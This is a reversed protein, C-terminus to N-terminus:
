KNAKTPNKITFHRVGFADPGASEQRIEGARLAKEVQQQDLDIQRGARVGYFGLGQRYRLSAGRLKEALTM